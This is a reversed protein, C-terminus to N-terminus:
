ASRSLVMYHEKHYPELNIVDTVDYGGLRDVEASAVERAAGAASISRVKVVLMFAGGRRLFMRCNRLAIETQDPQAIDAYVADMRGSVAFYESPSRADQMVPVVNSRPGAVRDMFDRAVRSSHDVGYVVGGAGVMDSVHSLTTGTSSGLYLVRDGARFPVGGLGNMIAAALKSRRPDWTRYESGAHRVLREGYVRNGPVLNETAPVDRGEHRVWAFPEAGQM